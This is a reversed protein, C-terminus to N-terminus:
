GGGPAIFIQDYIWPYLTTEWRFIFFAITLLFFMVSVAGMRIMRSRYGRRRALFAIELFILGLSISWYPLFKITLYLFRM